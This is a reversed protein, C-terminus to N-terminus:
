PRRFSSRRPQGDRFRGPRLGGLGGRRTAARTREVSLSEGIAASAAYLLDLGQSARQERTIDRIALVLGVARPSGDEGPLPIATMEVTMVGGPARMRTPEAAILRGTALVGRLADAVAGLDGAPV